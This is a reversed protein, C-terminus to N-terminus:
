GYYSLSSKDFNDIWDIQWETKLDANSSLNAFYAADAGRTALVVAPHQPDKFINKSIELTLRKCQEADYFGLTSIYGYLLIHYTYARIIESSQKELLINLPDINILITIGGVTKDHLIIGVFKNYEIGMSVFGLRYGARHKKIIKETDRKVQEFIETIDKKLDKLIM